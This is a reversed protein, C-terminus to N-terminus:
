QLGVLYAAMAEAEREDLLDGPMSAQGYLIIDKIVNVDMRSGIYNLEPGVGGEFNGGHCAACAQQYVYAPDAHVTSEEELDYFDTNGDHNNYIERDIEASSLLDTEILERM